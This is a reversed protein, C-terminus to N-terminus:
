KIVPARYPSWAKEPRNALLSIFAYIPIPVIIAQISSFAQWINTNAHFQSM